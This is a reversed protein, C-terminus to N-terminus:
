SVYKERAASVVSDGHCPGQPQSQSQLDVLCQPNKNYTQAQDPLNWCLSVRHRKMCGKRGGAGESCLCCVPMEPLPGGLKRHGRGVESEEKGGKEWHGHGVGQLGKDQECSNWQPSPLWVDRM